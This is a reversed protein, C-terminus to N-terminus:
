HVIIEPAGNVKRMFAHELRKSEFMAEKLKKEFVLCVDGALRTDGELTPIEQERLQEAFNLLEQFLEYNTKATM